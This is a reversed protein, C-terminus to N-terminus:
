RVAGSGQALLFHQANYFQLQNLSPSAGYLTVAVSGSPPPGRGFQATDAGPAQSFTGPAPRRAARPWTRWRARLGGLRRGHQVVPGHM